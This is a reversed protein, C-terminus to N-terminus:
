TLCDVPVRQRLGDALVPDSEVFTRKTFEAKGLVATGQRPAM